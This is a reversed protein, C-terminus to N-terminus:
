HQGLLMRGSAHQGAASHLRFTLANKNVDHELELMVTNGPRIVHQFKLAQMGVCDPPLDFYRRGLALAWDLQVVGPLIPAQDFHGQFYLLDQPVHLALTVQTASQQHLTEQPMLAAPARDDALLALLAANTTKGQANSPLAPLYRWLRPLALHEISDVLQARLQRNMQLKGAQQLQAQGAANLVIFAAIRDRQQANQADHMLVRAETVWPTALLLQEIQDLSIRKEELKVIRDARGRLLFRPAQGAVFLVRDAMALWAHDPLHPSRVELCDNDAHARVQVQPMPQWSDDRQGDVAPAIQRWAIGGTESSGYIEIPTQRFLQRAADAVEPLLPGGSSFVAHLQRTDAQVLSAPLRKLHAPSSLLLWPRDVPALAALQEPFFASQAHIVRGAALPWLVKFLLGYIHQHSVTAVIECQQLQQGFLQELTAVECALQALKKPIAQATGTSGSTYVVLGPFDGALAAAQNGTTLPASPRQAAAAPLQLPQWSADVEGIFGDVEAALAKCTAPLADGPLYITKGAQWAGFLAAAFAITDQLYLAFRQGRHAQLCQQWGLIEERFAANSIAAGARWGIIQQDARAQQPLALIDIFDLM